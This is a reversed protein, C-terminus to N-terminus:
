LKDWNKLPPMINELLDSDKAVCIIDGSISIREDNTRNKQTGHLTKSPFIIIDDEDVPIDISPANFLNYEKIIGRDKVSPNSFIGPVFENRYFEEFFVINSDEANKKLYYAFSIHSQKHRHAKIKEKGNSVTAWSRTIYLDIEDYNIALHKLYDIIKKKIEQFLFVFNKNKCLYEFGHTDGTWSDQPGLSQNNRSTQVMTQIEKIMINKLNEDILIKEKVLSLPFLNIINM